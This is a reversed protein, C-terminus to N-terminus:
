KPTNEFSYKCMYYADVVDSCPNGHPKCDLISAPDVGTEIVFCEHM